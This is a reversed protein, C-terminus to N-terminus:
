ICEIVRTDYAKVATLIIVSVALFVFLAVSLRRHRRNRARLKRLQAPNDYPDKVTINETFFFAALLFVLAAVVWIFVMANRSAFKTLTGAWGYEAASYKVPWNLWKAKSVWPVFFYCLCYFANWLISIDLVAKPGAGKKIQLACEYLLHAYIALLVLALVWGILRQAFYWSLYGNGMTNFNFPYLLVGPLKFFIWVTSVAAGFLATMGGGLSVNNEDKRKLLLSSVVYLLTTVIIIAYIVHNWHSSIIRNSTNKVVSFVVSALIGLFIGIWNLKQGNKGVQRSLVAHILSVFTVPLFLDQTVMWLYKLM